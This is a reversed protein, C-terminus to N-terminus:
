RRPKPRIRGSPLRAPLMEHNLASIPWLRLYALDEDVGAMVQYHRYSEQSVWAYDTHEGNLEIRGRRWRYHFLDIRYIGGDFSDRFPGASALLELAHDTGIEEHM